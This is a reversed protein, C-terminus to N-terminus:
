KLVERALVELVGFIDGESNFSHLCLRLREQGQPVTPSLIPKVDFGQAQINKAIERVRENGPIIACQIASKSRVFLPQIGLLKKQQNFYNINNRLQSRSQDDALLHQYAMHITALM